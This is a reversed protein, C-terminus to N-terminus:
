TSLNTQQQQQQQNCLHIRIHQTAPTSQEESENPRANNGLYNSVVSGGEGYICM